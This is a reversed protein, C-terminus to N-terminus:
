GLPPVDGEVDPEGFLVSLARRRRHDASSAVTQSSHAPRSWKAGARVDQRGAHDREGPECSHELAGKVVLCQV